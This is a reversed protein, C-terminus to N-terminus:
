SLGLWFDLEVLSRLGGFEDDDVDFFARALFRGRARCYLHVVEADVELRAFFEVRAPAATLRDAEREGSEDFAPLVPDGAHLDATTSLEDTRRV